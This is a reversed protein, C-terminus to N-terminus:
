RHLLKTMTLCTVAAAATATIVAVIVVAGDHSTEALINCQTFDQSILHM